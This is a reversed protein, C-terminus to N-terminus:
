VGVGGYELHFEGQIPCPWELYELDPWCYRCWVLAGERVLYEVQVQRGVHWSGVGLWPYRHFAAFGAQTLVVGVARSEHRSTKRTIIDEVFVGVFARWVVDEVAVYSHFVLAKIDLFDSAMLLNSAASSNDGHEVFRM